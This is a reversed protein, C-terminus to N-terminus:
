SKLKYALLILGLTVGLGLGFGLGLGLGLGFRSKLTEGGEGMKWPFFEPFFTESSLPSSAYFAQTRAAANQAIPESDRSNIFFPCDEPAREEETSGRTIGHDKLFTPSFEKLVEQRKESTFPICTIDFERFLEISSDSHEMWYMYYVRGIRRAILQKTCDKCPVHTVYVTAMVPVESCYQLANAEAHLGLKGTLINERKKEPKESISEKTTNLQQESTNPLFGNWGVALVAPAGRDRSRCIICGVSPKGVAHETIEARCAGMLAMKMWFVDTKNLLGSSAADAMEQTIVLSQVFFLCILRKQQM